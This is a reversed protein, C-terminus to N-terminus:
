EVSPALFGDLTQEIALVALAPHDAHRVTSPVPIPTPGAREQRPRRIAPTIASTRGWRIRRILRWASPQSPHGGTRSRTTLKVKLCDGVYARLTLPMSQLGTAVTTMEEELASIRANPNVMQITREFDMEIADPAKSNLRMSPYDMAVVNLSKM